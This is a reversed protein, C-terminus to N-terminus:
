APRASGTSTAATATRRACRVRRIPTLTSADFLDIPAGIDSVPPKGDFVAVAHLGGHSGTARVEIRATGNATPTFKYVQDTTATIIEIPNDNPDGFTNCPVVPKVFDNFADRLNAGQVVTDVHSFIDCLDAATDANEHTNNVTVTTISGPASNYLFVASEFAGEGESSLEIHTPQTLTFSYYAEKSGSTGTGGCLPAFDAAPYGSESTGDM